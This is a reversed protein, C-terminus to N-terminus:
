WTPQADLLIYSHSTHGQWSLRAGNFDLQYIRAQRTTKFYVSMFFM